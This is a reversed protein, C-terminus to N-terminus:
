ATARPRALHRAFWDAALRAVEDLAGPEEFLHTAGAVVDVRAESRLARAANRNLDAVVPDAGGVILLVPAVVEPLRPAALDPRGGRCVVAGIAHGLDAAAWLAAGAGTSAGFLGVPLGELQRQERVWDLAALLRGALLPVNFVKRRDREEDVTLLDILLTAFGRRNLAEAVYRNRASHRGSGSGHAFVVVGTAHPPLLLDGELHEPTETLPVRMGHAAPAPATGEGAVPQDEHGRAARDLLAQVESDPTQGFREYWLGIAWLEDPVELCVLHDAESRLAEVAQRSGVPVALVLRRPKRARVARLAARATSGTALGDDVVVVDRGAVDIPERNRRYSAVRESLEAGARHLAHELEDHSVLMQGILLHDLVRVDDEAVAGMALEPNGPAGVKRVVLVDLPADLARAVEYAVPVGGRPLGLVVPDELGLASVAGSLQRGASRRDHFLKLRSRSRM